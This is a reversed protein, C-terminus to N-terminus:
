SAASALRPLRGAGLAQGLIASVQLPELLFADHGHDSRIERYEAGVDATWERVQEPTYLLDGQIGVGILRGSFPRLAAAIGGRGRGVDHSDMADILARYSAADFRRLLKDGQHDLYSQVEFTGDACRDRGFRSEFEDPTRYTLMAIMRALRLGADGGLRLAERQVHNFGIAHATHAAPAAFAVVARTTRPFTAAWELAVMGGLSGGAALAVSTAGLHSAVDAALRAMDRTTVCTGPPPASTGYCSGLLNVTLVAFRRTDIVRGDGVQESWWDLPDPTGTLSHFLVVLNDREANLRGRLTYAQRLNRLITGDELPFERTIHIHTNV